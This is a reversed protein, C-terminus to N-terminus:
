EDCSFVNRCMPCLKYKSCEDFEIKINSFCIRCLNHGCSTFTLSDDACVCCSTDKYPDADKFLSLNRNEDTMNLEEEEDEEDKIKRLVRDFIKSFKYKNRFNIIFDVIYDMIKKEECNKSFTRYSLTDEKYLEVNYKDNYDILDIYIRVSKNSSYTQLSIYIRFSFNNDELKWEYPLDIIDDEHKTVYKNIYKKLYDNYLKRRNELNM